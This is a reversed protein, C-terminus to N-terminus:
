TPNRTNIGANPNNPIAITKIGMGVLPHAWKM